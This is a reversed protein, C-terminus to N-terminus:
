LQALELHFTPAIPIREPEPCDAGHLGKPSPTSTNGSEAADAPPDSRTDHAMLQPAQPAAAAPPPEIMRGAAPEFRIVTRSREAEVPAAPKLADSLRGFLNNPRDNQVQQHGPKFIAPLESEASDDGIAGQRRAQSAMPSSPGQRMMVHDDSMSTRISSLLDEVTHHNAGNTITM